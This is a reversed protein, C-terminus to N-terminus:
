PINERRTSLFVSQVGEWKHSVESLMPVTLRLSRSAASPQTPSPLPKSVSWPCAAPLLPPGPPGKPSPLTIHGPLPPLPQLGEGQATAAVLAGERTQGTAMGLTKRVCLESDPGQGAAWSRRHRCTFCTEKKDRPREM